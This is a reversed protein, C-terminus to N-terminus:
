TSDNRGGRATRQGTVLAVASETVAVSREMVHTADKLAEGLVDLRAEAKERQAREYEVDANRTALAAAVLAAKEADDKRHQRALIVGSTVALFLAGYPGLIQDWPLELAM